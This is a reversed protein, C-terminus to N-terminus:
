TGKVGKVPRGLHWFGCHECRYVGSLKGAKKRRSNVKQALAPNEFRQKGECASAPHFRYRGM